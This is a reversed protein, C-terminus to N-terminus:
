AFKRATPVPAVRRRVVVGVMAVHGVGSAAVGAVPAVAVVVPAVVVRAVPVPRAQARRQVGVTAM